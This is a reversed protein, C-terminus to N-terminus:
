CGVHQAAEDENIQETSCAVSITPPPQLTVEVEDLNHIPEAIGHAFIFPLAPQTAIVQFDMEHVLKNSV